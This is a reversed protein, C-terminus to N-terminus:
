EGAYQKRVQAPAGAVLTNPVVDKTVVSGAAVVAGKGITVGPLILCRAGIWAGDDIKVPASTLDGIRRSAPGLHHTATLIMVEHGIGVNDGVTISDHLDFFCGINITCVHGVHLRTHIPGSGGFRPTGLILTNSAIQFGAARLLRTRLRGGVYDPILRMLIGTLVLRPHFSGIEEAVVTRLRASLRRSNQLNGASKPGLPSQTSTMAWDKQLYCASCAGLVAILLLSIHYSLLTIRSFNRNM